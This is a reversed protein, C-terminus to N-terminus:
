NGSSGVVIRYRGLRAWEPNYPVQGINDEQTNSNDDDGTDNGPNPPVDTPTVPIRVYPYGKYISNGDTLRELKYDEPINCFLIHFPQMGLPHLHNFTVASDDGNRRQRIRLRKVEQAKVISLGWNTNAVASNVTYGNYLLYLAKAGETRASSILTQIQSIPGWWRIDRYKGQHNMMKAQLKYFHYWGPRDSEIFLDIDAGRTAEHVNEHFAYVECLAPRGGYFDVIRFVLDNTFGLESAKLRYSFVRSLYHWVGNEYAQIFPCIRTM